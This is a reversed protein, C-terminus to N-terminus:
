GVPQTHLPRRVPSSVCADRVSAHVARASLSPNAAESLATICANQNREMWSWTRQRSEFVLSPERHAQALAKPRQEEDRRPQGRDGATVSNSSHGDRDTPHLQVRLQVRLLLNRSRPALVVMPGRWRCSAELVVVPLGRRAELVVVPLGRRAELVVVPSRGRGAMVVRRLCRGARRRARRGRCEIDSPLGRGGALPPHARVAVELRVEARIRGHLHPVVREGPACERRRATHHVAHNRPEDRPTARPRM